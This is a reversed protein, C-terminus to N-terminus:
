KKVISAGLSNIARLFGLAHNFVTNITSENVAVGAAEAAAALGKSDTEKGALFNNVIQQRLFLTAPISGDLAATYIYSSTKEVVPKAPKEKVPKTAKAAAAKEAKEAAKEAKVKEAAAIKEAKAAESKAKESKAKEAAAAKESKGKAPAAAAPEEVVESTGGDALGLDFGPITVPENANLAAAASNFWNQDDVPLSAWAEDSLSGVATLLRTSFEVETEAVKLNEFTPDSKKVAKLLETFTTAM